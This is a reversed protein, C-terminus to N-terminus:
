TRGLENMTWDPTEELSALKLRLEFLNEKHRELERLEEKMMNPKMWETYFDLYVKELQKKDSILNGFKDKKALRIEIICTEEFEVPSEIDAVLHDISSHALIVIGRGKNNNTNTSNVVKYDKM